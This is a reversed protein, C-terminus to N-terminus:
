KKHKRKKGGTAPTTASNDGSNSVADGAMNVADTATENVKDALGKAGEVAGTAADSASTVLNDAGETINTSFEDSAKMFEEGASALGAKVEGTKDAIDSSDIKGISFLGLLSALIGGGGSDEDVDDQGFMEKLKILALVVLIALISWLIFKYSQSILQKNSDETMAILRERQYEANSIKTLDKKVQIMTNIYNFSTDFGEKLIPPPPLPKYTGAPKFQNAFLNITDMTQSFVTDVSTYMTKPDQSNLSGKKPVIKKISCMSNGSMNGIYPYHSYQTTNVKEYVGNTGKCGKDSINSNINPVKLMLKKTPDLTRVGNPYMKSRDKLECKGEAGTNGNTYVYGGCNNDGDCLERCKDFSASIVQGVAMTSIRRAYEPPNTRPFKNADVAYTELDRLSYADWRWQYRITGLPGRNDNGGMNHMAAGITYLTSGWIIMDYGAFYPFYRNDTALHTYLGNGWISNSGSYKNKGDYVFSESDHIWYWTGNYVWSKSNYSGLVRGDSLTARTYTAGKNACLRWWREPNWGNDSARYLLNGASNAKGPTIQQLSYSDELSRTDYGGLDIYSGPKGKKPKVFTLARSPYDRRNGEFDVNAIQGIKGRGNQDLNDVGTPGGTKLSYLAVSRDNESTEKGYLRKVDSTNYIKMYMDEGDEPNNVRHCKSADANYNLLGNINPTGSRTYVWCGGRNAPAGKEPASIMFYSSGLDEARRKCQSISAEFLDEQFTFGRNEFDKEPNWLNNPITYCGIELTDVGQNKFQFDASPKETVFINKNENNCSFIGSRNPTNNPDKVGTNIVMFLPKTRGTDGAEYAFEFPKLNEWTGAIKIKRITNSKAPCGIVISANKVMKDTELWNTPNSSVSSPHLWIQFIGDKTIYGYKTIGNADTVEAWNQRQNPDNREIHKMISKIRDIHDVEQNTYKQQQDAIAKLGQSQNFTGGGKGNENNNLGNNDAAQMGEQSSVNHIMTQIMNQFITGISLSDGDRKNSVDTNLVEDNITTIQNMLIGRTENSNQIHGSANSANKVLDNSNQYFM